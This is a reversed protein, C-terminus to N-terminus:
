EVKDKVAFNLIWDRIKKMASPSLTEELKGYEVPSGTECTQFFHNLNPLVEVGSGAHNSKALVKRIAEANGAPPVQADKEGFLALVPCNVKELARVPNYQLSFRFWPSSFREVGAEIREPPMGPNNDKLLERLKRELSSVDPEQEILTIVKEQLERKSEIIKQPLGLSKGTSEEYQLHYERGPLGPSGLMIIFAVDHSKAAALTAIMGGESHGVLGIKETDIQSQSKLYEVGALADEAYDASTAQSRNGKSEGTGRDDVRLVAIGNRTLYDALVWFPKHWLITADRDQAGGGSILLVAPYPGARQPSTLTGALHASENNFAVDSVNYAFPPKPTQPRVPRTIQTIRKFVMDHTRGNQSWKGSIERYGADFRGTFSGYFNLFVLRLEGNKLNLEDAPHKKDSQDPLIMSCTLEGDDTQFIEIVLRVQLGPFSLTGQWLGLGSQDGNEAFSAVSALAFFAGFVLLNMQRNHM